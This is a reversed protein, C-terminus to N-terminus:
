SSRVTILGGEQLPPTRLRGPQESPPERPDAPPSPRQQALTPRKPPGPALPSSCPFPNAPTRCPKVAASRSDSPRRGSSDQPQDRQTGHGARPGPRVLEGVVVEETTTSGVEASGIRRSREQSGLASVTTSEKRSVACPRFTTHM